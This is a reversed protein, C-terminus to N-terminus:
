LEAAEMISTQDDSVFYIRLESAPKGWDAMLGENVLVQARKRTEPGADYVTISSCTAPHIYRWTGIWSNAVPHRIIVARAYGESGFRQGEGNVAYVARLAAEPGWFGGTGAHTVPLCVRNAGALARGCPSGGAQDAPGGNELGRGGARVVRREKLDKLAAM